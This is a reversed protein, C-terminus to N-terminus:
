FCNKWFFFKWASALQCRRTFDNQRFHGGLSVFFFFFFHLRTESGYVKSHPLSSSLVCLLTKGSSAVFSAGTSLGKTPRASVHRRTVFAEDVLRLKPGSSTVHLSHDPLSEYRCGSCAVRYNQLAHWYTRTKKKKPSSLGKSKLHSLPYLSRQPWMCFRREDGM